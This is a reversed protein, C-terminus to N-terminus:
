YRLAKTLEQANKEVANKLQWTQHMLHSHLEVDKATRLCAAALSKLAEPSLGELQRKEAKDAIANLLEVATSTLNEIEKLSIANALLIVEGTSETTTIIESCNQYVSSLTARSSRSVAKFFQALELRISEREKELKAGASAHDRTSMRSSKDSILVSLLQNFDTLRSAVENSFTVAKGLTPIYESLTGTFGQPVNVYIEGIETYNAGRIAKTFVAANINMRGLDLKDTLHKLDRKFSYVLNPILDAIRNAMGSLSFAELAVTENLLELPMVIADQTILPNKM